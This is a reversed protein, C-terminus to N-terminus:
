NTPIQATVLSYLVILLGTVINAIIGADYIEKELTERKLETKEKKKMIKKLDAM